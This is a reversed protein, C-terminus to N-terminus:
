KKIKKRPYSKITKGSLKKHEKVSTCNKSGSKAKSKM